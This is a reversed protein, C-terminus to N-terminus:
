GATRRATPLSLVRTAAGPIAPCLSVNQARRSHTSRGSGQSSRTGAEETAMTMTSAHSSLYSPAESDRSSNSRSSISSSYGQQMGRAGDTVTPIDQSFATVLAHNARGMRGHWARRADRPGADQSEVPAESM